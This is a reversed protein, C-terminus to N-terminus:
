PINNGLFKFNPTLLKVNYKHNINVTQGLSISSTSSPISNATVVRQITHNAQPPELESSSRSSGSSSNELM